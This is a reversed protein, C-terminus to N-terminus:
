QSTYRLSPFHKKQYKVTLYSKRRDMVLPKDLVTIGGAKAASVPRLDPWWCYEYSCIQSVYVSGSLSPRVAIIVEQPDGPCPHDNMDWVILLSIPSFIQETIESM